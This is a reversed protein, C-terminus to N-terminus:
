SLSNVFKEALVSHLIPNLNETSETKKALLNYIHETEDFKISLKKGFLKVEKVGSYPIEFNEKGDELIEDFPMNKFTEQRQEISKKLLFYSAGKLYLPSLEVL